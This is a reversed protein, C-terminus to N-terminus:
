GGRGLRGRGRRRGLLLMGGVGLVGMGMPEPVVAIMETPGAVASAFSVSGQTNFANDILTYDDGNVVGDYNFDGNRWGALSKAFGNDIAIYDGGNVVGDFNADGFFTYKVLVDTISVAQGDFSNTWTGGSGNNNLEVALGTNHLAAAASSKIGGTGTWAGNTGNFGEALQSTINALNGNHVILDNNSLDVLGSWLGGGVSLINLSALQLVIKAGTGHNAICLAGGSITVAAGNPLAGGAAIVLAGGSITTSGGYTNTGTLVQTSAGSKVLSGTGSIAGSFTATGASGNITLAVGTAPDTLSISGVTGSSAITSATLQGGTVTINTGLTSSFMLGGAAVTANSQVQLQGNGNIQFMSGSWSSGTGTVQATSGSSIVGLSDSISGGGSVVLSGTGSAGVEMTCFSTGSAVAVAGNQVTLSGDGLEGVNTQSPLYWKTNAGTVTMQAPGTLTGDIGVDSATSTDLKAGNQVTFGASINDGLGVAIADNASFGATSTLALGGGDLVVSGGGVQLNNFKSGTGTLTLLTNTDAAELASNMVGSAFTIGGALKLNAASIPLPGTLVLNNAITNLAGGGLDTVSGGLRIAGGQVTYGGGTFTIAGLQFPAGVNQNSTLGSALLPFLVSGAGNNAPMLGGAWNSLDSWLADTGGGSWTFNTFVTTGSAAAGHLVLAGAAVVMSAGCARRRSNARVKRRM